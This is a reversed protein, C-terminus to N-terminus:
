AVHTLFNRILALGISGSKEPHFQMGVLAGRQVIAPVACGNVPTTAVVDDPTEADFYYSHVFYVMPSDELGSMLPTPRAVALSRWGVNPVRIADSSMPDGEPLRRVVGALLGLGDHAGFELGQRAFMQMGLCIGLMPIGARAREIVSADLARARLGTMGDGFAGVGPLVVRDARRIRDPDSTIEFPLESVHRIAQGLSYLNGREYDVIIM